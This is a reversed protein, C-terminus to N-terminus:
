DAPRNPVPQSEAYRLYAKALDVPDREIWDELYFREDRCLRVAYDPNLKGATILFRVYRTKWQKVRAQEVAEPKDGSM